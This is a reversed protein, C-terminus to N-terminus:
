GVDANGSGTSFRDTEMATPSSTTIPNHDHRSQHIRLHFPLRPHPHVRLWIPVALALDHDSAIHRPLPYQVPADRVVTLM